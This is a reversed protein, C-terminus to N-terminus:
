EFESDTTATASKEVMGMVGAPTFVFSAVLASCFSGVLFWRVRRIDDALLVTACVTVAFISYIPAVGKWRELVYTGAVVDALVASGAWLALM